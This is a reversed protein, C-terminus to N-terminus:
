HSLLNKLRAELDPSSDLVEVAKERDRQQVTILVTGTDPLKQKAAEQMTLETMPSFLKYLDAHESGAWDPAIEKAWQPWEHWGETTVQYISTGVDGIM